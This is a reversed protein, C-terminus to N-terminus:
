QNLDVMMLNLRTGNTFHGSQFLLYRGDPSFSPHAHDPKMKTDPVVKTRLGTAVDIIWVNGAFTDGAALRNDRTSNSHWFGRGTMQAPCARRDQDLEVQGICEVDDTRLNIRMIGSAQKRLRDQFGLINFYVYDETAFTEHTVWDLPTEAYLPKMVSGDAKCYWMRQHADGGTENCFVIEEPRFRSAQIHGIRFDADIVKTVEGTQLDMKRIGSLTPSVKVPQNDLPKFAKEQMAKIEEPTGERQVTIYAYRDDCSVCYSGAKGMNGPFIGVLTEYSAKDKVKGARVDTFFADLNMVYMKWQGEEMRSLFMRNSQNALFPTGPNQGGTAQFIRGTSLEVFFIQAPNVRVMEGNNGPREFAASKDRSSSRFLLYRSDSTWMPDTQYLYHDNYTTDTLVQIQYGTEADVYSFRESPNYSGFQAQAGLTVLLSLSLLSYKQFRMIINISDIKNCIVFSIADVATM